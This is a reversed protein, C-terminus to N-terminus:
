ALIRWPFGFAMYSCILLASPSLEFFLWLHCFHTGGRVSQSKLLSSLASSLSAVVIESVSMCLSSSSFPVFCGLVTLLMWLPFSPLSLLLHQLSHELGTSLWECVRSAWHVCVLYPFVSVETGWVCVAFYWLYVTARSSTMPHSVGLSSLFRILIVDCKGEYVVHSLIFHATTTCAQSRLM